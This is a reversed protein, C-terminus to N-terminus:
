KHTTEETKRMQILPAFVEKEEEKRYLTRLEWVNEKFRELTVTSNVGHCTWSM